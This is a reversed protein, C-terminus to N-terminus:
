NSHQLAMWTKCKKIELEMLRIIVTLDQPSSQGWISLQQIEELSKFVNSEVYNCNEQLDYTCEAFAATTFLFSLIYKIV